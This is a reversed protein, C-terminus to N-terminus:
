NLYVIVVNRRSREAVLKKTSQEFMIDDVKSVKILRSVIERRISNPCINWKVNNKTGFM